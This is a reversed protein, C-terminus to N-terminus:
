MRKVWLLWFIHLFKPIRHGAFFLVFGIALTTNKKWLKHPVFNILSMSVLKTLSHFTIM